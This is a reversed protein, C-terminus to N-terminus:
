PQLDLALQLVSGPEGLARLRGYEGALWYLGMLPSAEDMPKALELVFYERARETDLEAVRDVVSML